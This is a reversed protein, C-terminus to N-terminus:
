RVATVRTLTKEADVRPVKVFVSGKSSAIAEGGNREGADQYARPADSDSRLRTVEGGDRARNINCFWWGYWM